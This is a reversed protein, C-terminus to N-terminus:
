PTRLWGYAITCQEIFVPSTQDYDNPADAGRQSGLYSFDTNRGQPNRLCLDEVENILEDVLTEADVASYTSSDGTYEEDAETAAARAAVVLQGNRNQAPGDTTMADYTTEGGTSENSRAVTLHPYVSGVDELSTAVPFFADSGQSATPDYGVAGSPQWDQLLVDDIFLQEPRKSLRTPM